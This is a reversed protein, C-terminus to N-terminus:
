LKIESAQVHVTGSGKVHLQFAEGSGRGVADRWGVRAALDVDLAGEHAVYAQPDVGVVEGPRVELAFTGGHSLLAVSGAGTVQTTFLGQGTAAGRVASRLGGSGLFLVSTQLDADHALLRDAEVVLPRTGDLELVTVHLGRFGYLVSGTGTTAMRPNSESALAAGVRGPMGTGSGHVPRFVVDGTCGLMAGRRALVARAPTVHARVVKSNVTEFAM